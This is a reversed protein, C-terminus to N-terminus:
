SQLGHVSEMENIVRVAGNGDVINRCNNSLMSIVQEIDSNQFFETIDRELNHLDFKQIIGENDLVSLAFEQNDAIAILASPLGLCCREWTTSGAAGIAFDSDSMLSAMNSVGVLVETPIKMEESLGIIREKWPSNDGMVVTLRVNPLALHELTTLIRETINHEDIGGLTILINKLHSSSQRVRASDRIKSFEPRLLCYESGVLLRCHAPVLDAYDVQVRGFTQDLLLDCQHSRNALDDIVLLRVGKDTFYREWDENLAYSDVILWDVTDFDVICATQQADDQQSCGLWSSYEDMGEFNYTKREPLIHVKFELAQIRPVLHGEHNVCIFECDHGHLRLANSLTLCRMVHGSGISLSADVRFVIKM